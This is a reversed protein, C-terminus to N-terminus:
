AARRSGSDRRRRMLTVGMLLLSGLAAWRGGEQPATRCGCGGGGTVVGWHGIQNASSPTNASAGSGKNGTSTSGGTDSEGGSGPENGAGGEASGAGGATSSQGAEGSGSNGGSGAGGADDLTCSGDKCSAGPPCQVANCTTPVCFKKFKNPDQPDPFSKCEYGGLCPFEGGRCPEVCVGQVCANVGPCAALTDGIGDCDNDVLDCVEHDLPMTGGECFKTGAKCIYHGPGCPPRDHGPPPVNCEDGYWDDNVKVDELEDIKGDCDDDVGNCVEVGAAGDPKCVLQKLDSDCVLKGSCAGPAVCAGGLTPINDVEGDCDNDVNDCTENSPAGSNACVVVSGACQWTGKVCQGQGCKTGPAKSNCCEDGTVDGGPAPIGNDVVGDCDDDLGNCIETQPLQEGQCAGWKGTTCVQTGEHCIGVGKTGAPGSYCAMAMGDVVGDCDDDQNNCTEPFPGKDGTCGLVGNTCVATGPTCRGVSSGCPGGVDVLGGPGTEDIKGDCDNDKGDCVEPLPVCGQCSLNEDIFGNCNDDIGNCVEPSGAPPKIDTCTASANNVCCQGVGVGCKRVGNVQCAGTGESCSPRCFKIPTENSCTYGTACQANANCTCRGANCNNSACDGNVVCEQYVGLGEDIRVNCNDDKGNCVEYKVTNAVIDAFAAEIEAQSNALRAQTTGGNVAMADLEATDLGAPDGMGLVYTKVPNTTNIDTMRQVQVRPLPEAVQCRGAGRCIGDTVCRNNPVDCHETTACQTDDNCACRWNQGPGPADYCDNSLCRNDDGRCDVEPPTTTNCTMGTGCDADATCTCRFNDNNGPTDVCNNSGCQADDDNCDQNVNGLTCVQDTGTCQANASCACRYDDNNGNTADFCNGSGCLGDTDNCDFDSTQGANCTDVGDTMVVLVYPRCDILSDDLPQAGATRSDTYVPRYWSERATTVARGLPTNGSGRLEPNRPPGGVANTSSCFDEVFDVWPLLQTSSAPGPSVLVRGGQDPTGCSGDYTLDSSTGSNPIDTYNDVGACRGRTTGDTQSNCCYAPNTTNPCAASEAYRELGFDLIGANANVVNQLALKAALMRSPNAADAVPWFPRAGNAATCAKNANCAFTSGGGLANDCFQALGPSSDGGTSNSDGFHWIMSGSTDLLVMVRGKIQTPALALAKVDGISIAFDVLAPYTIGRHDVRLRAFGDADFHLNALTTAGKGDVISVPSVNFWPDGKEDLVDTGLDDRPVAHLGEGLRASWVFLDPSNADRIAIESRLGDLTASQVLDASGFAHEYVASGDSALVAASSSALAPKLDLTHEPQTTPRLQVVGSAILPLQMDLKPSVEAASSKERSIPVLARGTSSFPLTAKGLLAAAQGDIRAAGPQRGLPQSRTADSGAEGSSCAVALMFCSAGLLASTFLGRRLAISM